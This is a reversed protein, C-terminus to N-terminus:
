APTLEASIKENALKPSANSGEEESVITSFKKQKNKIRV